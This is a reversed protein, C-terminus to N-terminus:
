SFSSLCRSPSPTTWPTAGSRDTYPRSPGWHVGRRARRVSSRKPRDGAPTSHPEPRAALIGTMPSGRLVSLRRGHEQLHQRPWTSELLRSRLVDREVHDRRPRGELDGQLPDGHPQVARPPGQYGDSTWESLNGNLDYVGESTRCGPHAGSVAVPAGEPGPGTGDIPTNCRTADRTDGYSSRHNEPGRCAREWENESCLRKGAETCLANAEPWTVHARPRQGAENPYEYTDICYAPLTVATPGRLGGRPREGGLTAAGGPILVMGDPCAPGSGGCAAVLWGLVALAATRSRSAPGVRRVPDRDFRNM